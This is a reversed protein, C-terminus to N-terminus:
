EDFAGYRGRLMDLIFRPAQGPPLVLSSMQVAGALLAEWEPRVAIGEASEVDFSLPERLEGTEGTRPDTPIRMKGAAVSLFFERASRGGGVSGGVLRELNRTIALPQVKTLDVAEGKNKQQDKYWWSMSVNDTISEM